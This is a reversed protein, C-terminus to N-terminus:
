QGVTNDDRHGRHGLHVPLQHVWDPLTTSTVRYIPQHEVYQPVPSSWQQPAPSSWQQPVASSWQQPVASSWQQPVPSSWQQPAPSSWQQPVPSSWQRAPSSSQQAPSSSQQALPSSAPSTSHHRCAQSARVHHISAMHNAATPPPASVSAPPQPPPSPTAVPTAVSLSTSHLTLFLGAAAVAVLGAASCALLWPRLYWRPGPVADAASPNGADFPDASYDDQEASWALASVSAPLRGTNATPDFIETTMRVFSHRRLLRKVSTRVVRVIVMKSSTRM